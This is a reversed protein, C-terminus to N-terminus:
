NLDMYDKNKEIEEKMKKVIDNADLQNDIMIQRFMMGDAVAKARTILQIILIVGFMIGFEIWTLYVGMIYGIIFYCVCQLITLNLRSSMFKTIMKKWTSM